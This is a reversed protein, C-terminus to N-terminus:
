LLVENGLLNLIQAFSSGGLKFSDGSLDLYLIKSGELPEIVPTITKTIDSAEAVASIESYRACVSCREPIEADDFAFGKGTPINIGLNIAFDSVAEVAKIFDRTRAKTRSPWMWNASLSVGKLGHTLPTWIINTLAEAIALKSGASPDILAAGPATVSRTAVGKNNIYDLAM